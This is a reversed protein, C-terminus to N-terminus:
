NSKSFNKGNTWFYRDGCKLRKMQDIAIQAVTPPLLGQHSECEFRFGVSLPILHVDSFATRLLM